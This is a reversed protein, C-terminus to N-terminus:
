KSLITLIEDTNKNTYEFPMSSGAITIYLTINEPM